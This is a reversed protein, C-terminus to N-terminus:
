SAEGLPRFCRLSGGGDGTLAPREALCREVAYGCRPNFLCGEPRDGAGPVVGPITPLRRGSKAREPLADLLAATYPHRPKGFLAEVSREEVQQGAYMVAVRQATEAVVGMDHTILVLAM